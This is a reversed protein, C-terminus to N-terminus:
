VGSKTKTISPFNAVDGLKDCFVETFESKLKAIVDTYSATKAAYLHVPLSPPMIASLKTSRLALLHNADPPTPTHGNDWPVIIDNVKPASGSHGLLHHLPSHDLLCYHKFFNLGLIGDHTGNLEM